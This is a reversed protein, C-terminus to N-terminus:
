SKDASLGQVSLKTAGDLLVTADNETFPLTHSQFGFQSPCAKTQKVESSKTLFLVDNLMPLTADKASIPFPFPTMM